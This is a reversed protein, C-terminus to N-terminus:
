QLHVLKRGFNKAIGTDHVEVADCSDSFAEPDQDRRHDDEGGARRHQAPELGAPAVGALRERNGRADDQEDEEGGGAVGARRLGLGGRIGANRDRGKDVLSGRAVGHTDARADVM